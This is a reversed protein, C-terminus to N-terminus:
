WELPLYDVGFVAGGYTVPQEGAKIRFPPCRDLWEDIVIRMERRALHSGLCNHPGSGFSIHRMVGKRDLDIRAPDAFMEPDRDAFLTPLSVFDGKKMQVGHFEVDRTVFRGMVVMSNARLMEEVAKDRQDPRSRLEAQVDPNEALYKFTFGLASAVTDLGAAYLVFCCGLKEELTLPRDLVQANVIYSMIDDRPEAERSAITEVLYDKISRVGRARDELDVGHMLLHEWELFRDAHELPLGMLSLFVNTPVPRAIATQFECGGKPLVDAILGRVMEGIGAELRTMQSPSFVKNMMMRFPRHMPADVDSPIMPWDEGILSSFGSYRDSSFLETDQVAELIHDYRKLIWSSRGRRGGASFIIDPGARLADIVAAPNSDIGPATQFSWEQVLEPPVHDPVKPKFHEM